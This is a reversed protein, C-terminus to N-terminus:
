GITHPPYGRKMHCVTIITPKETVWYYIAMSILLVHILLALSLFVIFMSSVNLGLILPCALFVPFFTWVAAYLTFAHAKRKILRKEETWGGSFIFDHKSRM